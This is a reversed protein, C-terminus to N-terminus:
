STPLLPCVVNKSFRNPGRMMGSSFLCPDLVCTRLTSENKSGEVPPELDRCKGSFLVPPDKRQRLMTWFISQDDLDRKRHSYVIFIQSM